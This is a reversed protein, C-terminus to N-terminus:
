RGTQPDPSPSNGANPLRGAPICERFSPGFREIYSKGLPGTEGLRDWLRILTECDIGHNVEVELEEEFKRLRDTDFTKLDPCVNAFATIVWGHLCSWEQPDIAKPNTPQLRDLRGYIEQRLNLWERNRSIPIICWSLLPAAVAILVMSRILSFQYGARKFAKGQWGFEPDMDM